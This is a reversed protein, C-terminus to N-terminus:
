GKEREREKQRRRHSKCFDGEKERSRERPCDGERVLVRLLSIYIEEQVKHLEDFVLYDILKLTNVLYWLRRDCLNNM